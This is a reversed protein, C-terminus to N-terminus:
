PPLLYTDVNCDDDAGTPCNRASAPLGPGYFGAPVNGTLVRPPLMPQRRPDTKAMDFRPPM